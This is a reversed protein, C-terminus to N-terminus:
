YRTGSTNRSQYSRLINKQQQQKKKTHFETFQILTLGPYVYLEWVCTGPSLQSQLTKRRDTTINLANHIVTGQSNIDGFGAAPQLSNAVAGGGM